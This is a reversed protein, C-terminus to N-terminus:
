KEKTKADGCNGWSGGSPLLALVLTPSLALNRSTVIHFRSSVSCSARTTPTMILTVMANSTQPMEGRDDDDFLANELPELVLAGDEL